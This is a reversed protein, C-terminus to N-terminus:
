MGEIPYHLKIDEYLTNIWWELTVIYSYDEGLTIAEFIQCELNAINENIHARTPKIM